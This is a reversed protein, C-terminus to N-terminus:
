KKRDSYSLIISILNKCKGCQLYVASGIQLLHFHHEGCKCRSIYVKDHEVWEIKNTENM